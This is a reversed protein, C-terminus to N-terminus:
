GFGVVCAGLMFALIILVVLMVILTAAFAMTREDDNQMLRPLGRYLLFAGYLGSFSLVWAGPFAGFISALWVPTLSYAILKLAQLPDKRGGFTESLFSTVLAMAYVIVLWLIYQGIASGVAPAPAAVGARVEGFAFSFILGAIVPIAALPAILNVYLGRITAPEREIQKWEAGPKLFLDRLRAPLGQITPGEEAVSM